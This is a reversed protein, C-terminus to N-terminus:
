ETRATVSMAYRCPGCLWHDRRVTWGESAACRPCIWGAPWRLAALYGAWAEESSFRKELELLTRPYDENVVWVSSTTHPPTLYIALNPIIAASCCRPQGRASAHLCRASRVPTSLTRLRTEM